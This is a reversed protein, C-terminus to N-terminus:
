GHREKPDDIPTPDGFIPQSPAGAALELRLLRRDLYKRENSARQDSETLQSLRKDIDKLVKRVYLGWGTLLTLVPGANTAVERIFEEETM